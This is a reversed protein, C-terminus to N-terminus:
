SGGTAHAVRRRKLHPDQQKPGNGAVFAESQTREKSDFREPMSYM